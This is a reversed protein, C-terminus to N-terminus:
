PLSWEPFILRKTPCIAKDLPLFLVIPRVNEREEKQTFIRKDMEGHCEAFVQLQNQLDPRRDVQWREVAKECRYCLVPQNDHSM